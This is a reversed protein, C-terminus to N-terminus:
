AKADATKEDLTEALAKMKQFTEESVYHEVRCADELATKESVGIRMFFRALVNHREYVGAAMEEGRATLSLNNKGDAEILGESRLAKLMESVTPRSFGFYACVDAARVDGRRSLVYVAELYNQASEQIKM